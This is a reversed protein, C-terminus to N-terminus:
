NVPKFSGDEYGTIIVLDSNAVIADYNANGSIDSLDSGQKVPDAAFAMSFSGLVLALVLVFSLAKRMKM